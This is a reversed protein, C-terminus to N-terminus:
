CLSDYTYNIAGSHEQFFVPQSDVDMLMCEFRSNLNNIARNQIEGNCDMFSYFYISSGATGDDAAVLFTGCTETGSAPTTFLVESYPSVVDGGCHSRVYFGYNIGPLLNTLTVENDLSLGTDVPTGPASMDYLIWDYGDAAAPNPDAWTITATFPSPPDSIVVEAFSSPQECEPESGAISGYVDAEDYTGDPCTVRYTALVISGVSAVPDKVTLTVNGDADITADDLYGEAFSVISPTAPFCCINDNAYVNISDTEGEALEGIDDDEVSLQTLSDCSQCNSNTVDFPTAQILVTAQGLPYDLFEPWEIAYEGDVAIGGIYRDGEITVNDHNLAVVLKQHMLQGMYDTRINYTKRITVSLTQTTGDAKRFRTAETPFQPTSAYLPLRVRNSFPM